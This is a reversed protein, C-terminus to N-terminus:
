LSSNFNATLTILILSLKRSVERLIVARHLMGYTSSWRVPMDLILQKIGRGTKNDVCDKETLKESQISRFLEKRKASSREQTLTLDPM